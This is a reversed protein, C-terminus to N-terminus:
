KTRDLLAIVDDGDAVAYAPRPRDPTFVLLAERPHVTIFSEDIEGQENQIRALDLALHKALFRYMAARKSPGYDHQEEAFHANEANEEAGLLRYVRQVYPFEVQPTNKTWDAGDSILLLPKPAISAAIEVNNTEHDASVHVPMGSECTCGGYFHASVQVVPVSVDIRPDVAALMFSQTGGGSEGTVALRDKDVGDLSLLFDLARMSAYTQLRLGQSHHHDVPTSEGYGAMDYAFVAAGMRALAASRKQTQEVMRNDTMHGHPCLVGPMSDAPKTPLYLNGTVWFGPLCEIAVNEVTYGDEQRVSHRIPKLPCAPPLRDLKMGKKVGRRIRDARARWQDATDYENAFQQLHAAGEAESFCHGMMLKQMEAGVSTRAYCLAAIVVFCCYNSRM